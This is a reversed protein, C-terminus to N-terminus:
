LHMSYPLRSEALRALLPGWKQYKKALGSKIMEPNLLHDCNPLNRVRFGDNSKASISQLMYCVNWQSSLLMLTKLTWNLCGLHLIRKVSITKQSLCIRTQVMLIDIQLIWSIYVLRLVTPMNQSFISQTKIIYINLWKRSSISNWADLRTSIAEVKYLVPVVM